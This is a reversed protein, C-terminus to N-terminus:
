LEFTFKLVESMPAYDNEKSPVEVISFGNIDVLFEATDDLEEKLINLGDESLDRGALTVHPRYPMIEYWISFKRLYSDIKDVLNQLSSNVEVGVHVVFPEFQPNVKKIQLNEKFLIGKLSLQFSSFSKALEEFELSTLRLEEESLSVGVGVTLHLPWQKRYLESSTLAFIEEQLSKLYEGGEGEIHAIVSYKKM